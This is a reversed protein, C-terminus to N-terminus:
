IFRWFDGFIRVRGAETVIHYRDFIIALLKGEKAEREQKM